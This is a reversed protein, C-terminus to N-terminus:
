RLHRTSGFDADHLFPYRCINGDLHAVEPPLLGKRLKCCKDFGLNRALLTAGFRRVVPRPETKDHPTRVAGLERSRLRWEGSSDVEIKQLYDHGDEAGGPFKYDTMTFCISVLFVTMGPKVRFGTTCRQIGAYAPIVSKDM